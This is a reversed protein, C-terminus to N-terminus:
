ATPAPDRATQKLDHARAAFAYAAELRDVIVPWSLEAAALQRANAGLRARLTADSALQDLKDAFDTPTDSALLGVDHRSLLAKMEGVPNTVIPKGLVFYENVRGPWRGRNAPKDVFPVAFVDACALARPFDEDRVFGLHRVHGAVGLESIQRKMAASLKGTMMLVADPRRQALLRMARLVSDLGLTVDLASFGVVFAGAPLGFEARDAGSGATVPGPPACGNPIWFISEATVGLDQARDNLGHSIVTTADALTRFHEEYWTEVGGLLQQYWWPRQEAILGGRGWWDIWDMVLPVPRRRLSRLVPHITAPRSEFAHILDFDRHRLFGMRWLCDWLDWGSRLRGWLLDPSEVIEVGDQRITAGRIKRTDAICLVTPQHGRRALESAFKVSRWSAKFRRHHNILLIRM